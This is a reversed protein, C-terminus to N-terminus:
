KSDLGLLILVQEIETDKLMESGLLVSFTIGLLSQRSVIGDPYPIRSIM